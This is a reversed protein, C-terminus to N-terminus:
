YATKSVHPSTDHCMWCSPILPVDYLTPSVLEKSLGSVGPSLSLSLHSQVDGYCEGRALCFLGKDSRWNRLDATMIKNAAM